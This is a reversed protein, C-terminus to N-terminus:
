TQLYNKSKKRNKPKKTRPGFMFTRGLLVRLVDWVHRLLSLDATQLSRLIFFM